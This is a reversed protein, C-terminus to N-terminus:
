LILQFAPINFDLCKKILNEPYGHFFAVSKPSIRRVYDLIDSASAHDSVEYQHDLFPYRELTNWGSAIVKFYGPENAFGSIFRPPVIAVFNGGMKKRARKQYPEYNGTSIGLREYAKHFPLAQQHVMVTREPAIKSILASIHQAKGMVYAGILMPRNGSAELLRVTEEKPLAHTAKNGFTSESILLDPKLDPISLPLCTSNPTMCFDGSYLVSEGKYEMLVQASGLMHGAPYFTIRVGDIEFPQDYPFTFELRAAKEKYRAKALAMTAPTCYVEHNGRPFHDAHAHSIVARRSPGSPDIFFSGPICWIGNKKWSLWSINGIAM